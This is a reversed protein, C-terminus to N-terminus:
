RAGQTSGSDLELLILAISRKLDPLDNQVIDWIRALDIGLYEHVVVNRFRGIGRWDVEPHAEKVADSVRQTSESLTHLNRLVADQIMTEQRFSEYGSATYQEIRDIRELIHVLYLGDDSV